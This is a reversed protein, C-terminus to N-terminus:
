EKVIKVTTTKGESTIKAFYVGNTLNNINIQQKTENTVISYVIRGTVDTVTITKATNNNLDVIFTGNNPNPYVNLGIINNKENIGACVIVSINATASNVCGNSNTFTYVPNFTGSSVGPAFSNGTVLTGSYVGGTPSGFLTISNGSVCTTPSSTVLNVVPLANVSVTVVSSGSCGTTSTGNATYTTMVTPSISISNTNAGTNWTYTNAGSATLNVTNGSCVTTTGSINITPNTGAMVMFTNTGICNLTNTGSVTYVTSVSPSVAITNTNAGTNWTFTPAGSATLNVTSANCSVSLGTIAMTPSPNVNLSVTNNASCGNSANATVTYVISSTVTNAIPNSVNTATLYSVPSWGYNLTIPAFRYADPTSITFIESNRGPVTLASTAGANQIGQVLDNIVTTTGSHVELVNTTEYLIAQATVTGSNSYYTGYFNVVFKQNPTVGTTFYEIKTNANSFNLDGYVVGFAPNAASTSPFANYYGTWTPTGSNMYIFGNTSIGVSTTAVGYFNFSFPLAINAWGGDDLSGSTLPTVVSGNNCLTTSGVTPLASYTIASMNYNTHTALANLTSSLGSCLTSPTATAFSFTPSTNVIITINTSSSCGTLTNTGNVIYNTNGSPTATVVAGLSSSLTAAPSWTFTNAGSATFTLPAGAPSCFTTGSAITNIIPNANYTLAFTPSVATSGSIACSSTVIYFMSSALTGTNQTLGTGMNTFPGVSSTSSAWQLSVGAMTASSSSFTLTTAAGACTSIAGTISGTAPAGSCVSAVTAWAFYEDGSLPGVSGSNSTVSYLTNPTMAGSGSPLSREVWTGTLSPAQVIRVDQQNGSLNDTGGFTSNNYRLNITNGAGLTAGGNYNLRYARSGFVASLSGSVAGSPAAEISATITQTNWATTGGLSLTRLVNSSPLNTNLAAGQGLPFNRVTTGTAPFMIKLPGNVFSGHNGGNTGNSTFTTPTAGVVGTSLSNLMLLNLTSTSIVGRTLIINSTTTSTGVTLPFSLIVNNHTNMTLNGTTHPKGGIIPIENGSTITTPTLALYMGLNTTTLPNVYLNNIMSINTPNITLTNSLSGLYREISLAQLSPPNGITLNANNVNGLYLGLFNSVTVPNLYNVGGSAAHSIKPIRNNFITGTGSYNGTYGLWVIEGVISSAPQFNMTGNNTLNGGFYTRKGTSGSGSFYSGTANITMDGYVQFLQTTSTTSYQLVGDISINQCRNINFDLSVTHTAAIVVNDDCTPITGTSWTAPNNWGGTATSTITAPIFEEVKFDDIMISNVGWSNTMEVGFKANAVKFAAPIKVNIKQWPTSANFTAVNANPAVGMICQWTAGGDNSAVVRLLIQNSSYGSFYMFRVFPNTSSSINVTPSEMRRTGLANTVSGFSCDEMFLAGTGSVTSTPLVGYPPIVTWGTGPNTNQVFDQEGDNANGEPNGDGLVVIRTQTWGAPAAPTGSFTGDFNESLYTQANITSISLLALLSAKLLNKKM